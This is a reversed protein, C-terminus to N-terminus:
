DNTGNVKIPSFVIVIFLSSVKKTSLISDVVKYILSKRGLIIKGDTVIRILWIFASM